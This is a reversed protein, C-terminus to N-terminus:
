PQDAEDAQLTVHSGIRAQAASIRRKATALSCDCLRAVEELAYGEVARLCWAIREAAPLQALLRQVLGLEVALEPSLNPAVLSALEELDAGRDLGLARLLRRRRFRRHVQHVTVRLLWPRIAARDRLQGVDRFAEIFTDQVVDEADSRNGVLRLALGWVVEVYKRYLVERAWSDGSILREALQVDDPWLARESHTGVGRPERRKPAHIADHQDVEFAPVNPLAVLGASHSVSGGRKLQKKSRTAGMTMLSTAESSMRPTKASPQSAGVRTIKCAAQVAPDHANAASGVCAPKGTGPM